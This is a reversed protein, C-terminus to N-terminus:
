VTKPEGPHQSIALKITCREGNADDNAMWVPMTSSMHITNFNVEDYAVM